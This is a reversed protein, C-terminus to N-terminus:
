EGDGAPQAAEGGEANVEVEAGDEANVEVAAGDSAEAQATDTDTADTAEESSGGQEVKEEETMRVEEEQDAGSTPAHWEAHKGADAVVIGCQCVLLQGAAKVREFEFGGITFTEPPDPPKVPARSEVRM